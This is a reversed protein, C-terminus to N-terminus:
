NDRSRSKTENASMRMRRVSVIVLPAYMFILNLRQWLGENEIATGSFEPKDAMVFLVFFFMAAAFKGSILPDESFYEFNERSKWSLIAMLLPVFLFLMFGVASGVGHIMSAATVVDKSENVSFFCTFVCAGVAFAAVFAAMTYAIGASVPRYLRFLAPLAVLFLVGELLMWLDFPLRVPSLPSGLASVPMKMCSYDACFLPLAWSILIDGAMAALLACWLVTEKTPIRRFTM